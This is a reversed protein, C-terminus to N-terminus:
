RGLEDARKKMYNMFTSIRGLWYEAEEISMNSAEESTTGHRLDPYLKHLVNFIAHGDKVIETEGWVDEKKLKKTAEGIEKEKGYEKILAEMASVCSRVSDKRAREDLSADELAKKARLIEEFAQISVSKVIKQTKDLESVVTSEDRIAWIINGTFPDRVCYYGIKHDLLFDNIDGLMEGDIDALVGLCDMLVDFHNDSQVRRRIAGVFNSVDNRLYNAGWNTTPECPIIEAFKNLINLLGNKSGARLVIGQLQSWFSSSLFGSNMIYNDESFSKYDPFNNKFSM